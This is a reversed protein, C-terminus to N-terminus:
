KPLEYDATPTAPSEPKLVAEFSTQGREISITHGIGHDHEVTQGNSTWPPLYSSHRVSIRFEIACHPRSVAADPNWWVCYVSEQFSQWDSVPNSRPHAERQDQHDEPMNGFADYVADSEVQCLNGHSKTVTVSIAIDDVIFLGREALGVLRKSADFISNPPRVDKIHERDAKALPLAFSRILEEYIESSLHQLSNPV